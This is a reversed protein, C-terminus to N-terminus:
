FLRLLKPASALFMHPQLAVAGEPQVKFPFGKAICNLVPDGRGRRRLPCDSPTGDEKKHWAFGPLGLIVSRCAEQVICTVALKGPTESM